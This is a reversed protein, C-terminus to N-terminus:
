ATHKGVLHERVKRWKNYYSFFAAQLHWQLLLWLLSFYWKFFCFRLADNSAKGEPPELNSRNLSISAFIREQGLRGTQQWQSLISISDGNL